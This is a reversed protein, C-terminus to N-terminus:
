TVEKNLLKRAQHRLTKMLKKYNEFSVPNKYNQSYLNYEEEISVLIETKLMDEAQQKTLKIRM